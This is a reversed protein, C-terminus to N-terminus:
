VPGRDHRHGRLQPDSGRLRQAFPHALGLDVCPLPRADGALLASVPPELPLVGLQPARILDEPPTLKKTTSSSRGCRYEHLEDLVVSVPGRDLRDAAHQGLVAPPSGTSRSRRRWCPAALRPAAAIHQQLCRDGPRVRIVVTDIADAFDPQLQVPPCPLLGRVNRLQHALQGAAIPRLRLDRVEVRVM